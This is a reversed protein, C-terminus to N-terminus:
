STTKGTGRLTSMSWAEEAEERSQVLPGEEGTLFNYWRVSGNGDLDLYWGDELRREDM